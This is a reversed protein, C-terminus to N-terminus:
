ENGFVARGTLPRINCCGGIMRIRYQEDILAAASWIDENEPLGIEFLYTGMSGDLIQLRRRHDSVAVGKALRSM